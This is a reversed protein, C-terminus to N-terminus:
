LASKFTGWKRRKKALLCYITPYSIISEKRRSLCLISSNGFVILVVIISRTPLFLLGEIAEISAHSFYSSASPVYYTGGSALPSM